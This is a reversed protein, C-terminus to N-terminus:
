RLAIFRAQGSIRRVLGADMEQQVWPKQMASPTLLVIFHTCNGLGEDIKRRLSDGSRIEWEAWWTDIGDAMLARAVTEALERDDFSYSLFAKPSGQQLPLFVTSAQENDSMKDKVLALLQPSGEISLRM